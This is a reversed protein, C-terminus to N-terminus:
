LAVGMERLLQSLACLPLGMVNTFCDGFADLDVPNLGEDQIGYGGAKDFPSGSDVYAEIEGRAYERMRVSSVAVSQVTRQSRRDHVALSTLVQHWRGALRLLMEIAAERDAPKGLIQDGDAVVTDAALAVDGASSARVARELKTRALRTVLARPGEEPHAAEEIEVPGLVIEVGALSMLERRRPSSSALLVTPISGTDTM